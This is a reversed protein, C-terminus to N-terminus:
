GYIEETVINKTIINGLESYLNENINQYKEVNMGYLKSLEEEIKELNDIYKIYSLNKIWQYVGKVKHNYTGIVICPTKTIAAFIMGHLRDTVMLKATSIEDLKKILEKKRDNKNIKKAIVTDTFYINKNYKECIKRIMQKDENTIKAEPDSRLCLLIKDRKLKSNYEKLYLVM